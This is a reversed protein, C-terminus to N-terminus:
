YVSLTRASPDTAGPSWRPMWYYPVNTYLTSEGFSEIYCKRYYAQEATKVDLYTDQWDEGLMGEAMEKASQYWSKEGSVGDSFAEKRRWLVKEPLIGDDFAKRLLWKECL